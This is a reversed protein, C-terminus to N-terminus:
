GAILAVVAEPDDPMPVHGCGPLRIEQAGPIAAALRPGSTAGIVVDRSGVCIRVPRRVDELSAGSWVGTARPLTAHFGPAGAFDRIEAAADAAPLRWPRGHLWGLLASRSV